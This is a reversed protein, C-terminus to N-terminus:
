EGNLRQNRARIRIAARRADCVCQELNNELQAQTDMQSKKRKAFIQEVLHTTAENRLDNAKM